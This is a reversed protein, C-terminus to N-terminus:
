LLALAGAMPELSSLAARSCLTPPIEELINQPLLGPWLLSASQWGCLWWGPTPKPQGPQAAHPAALSPFSLCQALVHDTWPWGALSLSEPWGLLLM